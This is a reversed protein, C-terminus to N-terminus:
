YKLYIQFYELIARQVHVNSCDRQFGHDERPYIMLDFDKNLSILEDVLQLADQAHVNDDQLGHVLLLKGRLGGAFNIPSSQAYALSDTEPFTFRQTTYWLNYNKWDNVAAVSCGVKFIEPRKFMAMNTLFGGYSWGWIGIHLSDAWGQQVCYKVADVADDLDRGGLHRYIATRWARGYGSSGRYDIDVVAFGEQALLRHFRDDFGWVAKDVNQAYGAGHIYVVLPAPGKRNPPLWLKAPLCQGDSTPITVYQPAFWNYRAFAKPQSTTLRQLRKSGNTECWYLDHPQNLDSYIVAVKSGDEAPAFSSLWGTESTIRRRNGPPLDIRYLHREASNDESSSYLLVRRDFSLTWDGEVEWNGSTLPKPDAKKAGLPYSYLHCWGSLESAFIISKGEPGFRAQAGHDALWCNDAEHWLTDVQGSSVDALLLFREQMPRPMVELLLKRSDPSWDLSRLYFQQDAPLKIWLPQLHASDPNIIGLKIGPLRGGAVERQQETVRVKKTTYDPILLRDFGTVDYQVFALKRSDPAWFAGELYTDYASGGNHINESGDRTLQVQSGTKLNLAFLEEGSTYALWRGDRNLALRGEPIKTQFLRLPAGGEDQVRFVDGRYIFYLYHGDRSWCLETLGQDLDSEERKQDVTRDDQAAQERPLNQLDTLRVLKGRTNILYLDQFRNGNANWLIALKSADPSWLIGSPPYGTIRPHTFLAELTFREQAASVVSM